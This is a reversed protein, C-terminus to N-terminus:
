LKNIKILIKSRIIRTWYEDAKDIDFLKKLWRNLADPSFKLKNLVTIPLLIRDFLNEVKNVILIHKNTKVIIEYYEPQKDLWCYGRQMGVIAPYLDSLNIDYPNYDEALAEEKSAINKIGTKLDYLNPSLTWTPIGRVASELGITSAWVVVGGSSSVLDYTNVSSEPRIVRCNLKSYFQIQRIYERWTKNLTNPHMRIIVDRGKQSLAQVVEDIAEEQNRWSSTKWSDGVGIFEDPSSTLIVISKTSKPTIPKTQDFNRIFQNRNLVKTRSDIFDQVYGSIESENLLRCKEISRSQVLERHHPSFSELFIRGDWNTEFYRVATKCAESADLVAATNPRRGNFVIVETPSIDEIISKVFYYNALFHKIQKALKSAYMNLRPQSSRAIDTCLVSALSRGLRPYGINWDEIEELTHPLMSSLDRAEIKFKRLTKRKACLILVNSKELSNYLHNIPSNKSFKSYFRTIKFRQFMEIKPQLASADILAVRSGSALIDHAIVEVAACTGADNQSVVIASIPTKLVKGFRKLHVM